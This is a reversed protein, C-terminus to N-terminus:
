VIGGVMDFSLQEDWCEPYWREDSVSRGKGYRKLKPEEELSVEIYEICYAGTIAHEYLRISDRDIGYGKRPKLDEIDFVPQRKMKEEKTVPRVVSRSTRWAKKHKGRSDKTQLANKLMYKAVKNYNGSSWLTEIHVHGEPWYRIIMDRTIEKNLVIHHHPRGTRTGIGISEVLKYPLAQKRCLGRINRKFNEVQKMAEAITTGPDHSLVVWLDGPKFNANLIATLARDQNIANVKRVAEPTPRTKPKRVGKETRIRSSDTYRTIITKGAITTFRKYM